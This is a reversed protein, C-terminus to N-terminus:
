NAAKEITVSGSAKPQGETDLVTIALMQTLPEVAVLGSFEVEVIQMTCVEATSVTPIRVADTTEDAETAEVVAEGPQECAGGQWSVNLQVHGEAAWTATASTLPAPEAALAPGCAFLVIAAFGATARTM